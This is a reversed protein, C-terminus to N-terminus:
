KLVKVTVSVTDKGMRCWGDKESCYTYGVIFSMKHPGVSVGTITCEVEVPKASNLYEGSKSLEKVNVTESGSLPKVSIPPQANLHIGSSPKMNIFISFPKGNEVEIPPKKLEVVVYKQSEPAISMTMLILLTLRSFM